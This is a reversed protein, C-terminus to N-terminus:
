YTARIGTTDADRDAITQALARFVIPDPFIGHEKMWAKLEEPTIDGAHARKEQQAFAEEEQKTLQDIRKM